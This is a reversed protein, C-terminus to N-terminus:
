APSSGPRPGRTPHAPRRWRIAFWASGLLACLVRGVWVVVPPWTAEPVALALWGLLATGAAAVVLTTSLARVSGRLMLTGAAVLAVPPGLLLLAEVMRHVVSTWDHLLLGHPLALPLVAITGFAGALVCVAAAAHLVRDRPDNIGTTETNV